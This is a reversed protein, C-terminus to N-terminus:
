FIGFSNGGGGISGKGSPRIITGGGGGGVNTGTRNNVTSNFKYNIGSTVNAIGPDSYRDTGEYTGVTADVSVGTKTNAATPVECTGTRNNVASNSKYATGSRVNAIGPDTHLDSGDYTGTKNNVTSNAKYATGVKVLAETPDTWRDSGDYTGNVTNGAFTYSTGTKTNGAGPSTYVNGDFSAVDVFATRAAGNLLGAGSTLTVNMTPDIVSDWIILENVRDGNLVNVSLPGTGLCIDNYSENSFSVSNGASPTLTGFAVADIYMKASNATSTGDWTFVLDYWTNATPSWTGISTGALVSTGSENRIHIRFEGGTSHHYIDIALGRGGGSSMSFIGRSAAPTGSYSPRFRVLISIARGNPTNFRGPWNVTKISTNAFFQISNGGIASADVAPAPLVSGFPVGKKGGNSYRADLSDGRVGFVIAM